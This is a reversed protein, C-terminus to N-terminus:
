FRKEKRIHLIIIECDSLAEYKHELLADFQIANGAKLEHLEDPLQFKLTGKLVWCLEYDDRHLKPKSVKAGKPATGYMCRINGYSIENFTFGDSKRTKSLSKHASRSEALSLLDAANIGFVRSLKYLTELSAMCQNRELKSIVSGSVGSRKCVENINLKERKRLDRLISFDYMKNM